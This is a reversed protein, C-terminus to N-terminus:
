TLEETPMGSKSTNFFDDKVDISNIEKLLSAGTEEM